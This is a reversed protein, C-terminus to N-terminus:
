ALNSATQLHDSVICYNQCYKHVFSQYRAFGERRLEDDVVGSAEGFYVDRKEVIWIGVFWGLESALTM